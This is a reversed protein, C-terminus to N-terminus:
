VAVVAPTSESIKVPAPTETEGEGARTMLPSIKENMEGAAEVVTGTVVGLYM